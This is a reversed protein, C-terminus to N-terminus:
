FAEAERRSYDKHRGTRGGTSTGERRVRPGLGSGKSWPEYKAKDSGCAWGQQTFGSSSASLCSIWNLEEWKRSM